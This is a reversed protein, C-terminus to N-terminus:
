AREGPSFLRGILMPTVPHLKVWILCTVPTKAWGEITGPARPSSSTNPPFAMFDVHMKSAM